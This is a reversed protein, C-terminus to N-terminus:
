GGLFIPSLSKGLDFPGLRNGSFVITISKVDALLDKGNIKVKEAEEPSPKFDPTNDSLPLNFKETWGDLIWLSEEGKLDSIQLDIM